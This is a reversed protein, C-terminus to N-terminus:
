PSDCQRQAIVQLAAELNGDSCSEVVLLTECGLTQAAVRTSDLWGDHKLDTPKLCCLIFPVDTLGDITRITKLFEFASEDSFHLAGVLADYKTGAFAETKRRRKTLTDVQHGLQELATKLASANESSETVALIKM